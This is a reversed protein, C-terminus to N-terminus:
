VLIDPIRYQCTLPYMIMGRRYNRCRRVSLCLKQQFLSVTISTAPLLNVVQEAVTVYRTAAYLWTSMTWKRRWIVDVEQSLTSLSEYLFLVCASVTVYGIILRLWAILYCRLYVVGFSVYEDQLDIVSSM